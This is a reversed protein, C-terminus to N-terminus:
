GKMRGLNIMQAGSIEPDENNFLLRRMTAKTAKLCNFGDM